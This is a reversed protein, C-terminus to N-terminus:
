FFSIKRASAAGRGVFRTMHLCFLGAALGRVLRPPTPAFLTLLDGITKTGDMARVIREELPALRLHEIRYSSEASPAFRADDPAAQELAPTSELLVMAHVIVDGINVRVPVAERAARNELTFRYRGQWGFAGVAVRRVHLEIMQEMKATEVLGMTLLADTVTPHEESRVLAVARAADRPTLLKRRLLLTLLDEGPLASRAGALQGRRLLLVRRAGEHNELWLEGSMQSQHFADLLDALARPSLV